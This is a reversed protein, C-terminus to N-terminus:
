DRDFDWDFHNEPNELTLTNGFTIKQPQPRIQTIDERSQLKMYSMDMLKVEPVENYGSPNLLDKKPDLDWM